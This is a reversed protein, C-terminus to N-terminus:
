SAKAAAVAADHRALWEALSETALKVTSVTCKSGNQRVVDQTITQVIEDEKIINAALMSDLSSLKDAAFCLVVVLCLTAGIQFWQLQESKM